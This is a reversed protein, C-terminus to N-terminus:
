ETAEFQVPASAEDEKHAPRTGSLVKNGYKDRSYVKIAVPTGVFCESTLCKGSVTCQNPDVCGTSIDFGMKLSSSDRNDSRAIEFIHHGSTSSTTRFKLMNSAHSRSSEDDNGDDDNDNDDHFYVEPVIDTKTLSEEGGIM